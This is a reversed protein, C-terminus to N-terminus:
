LRIRLEENGEYSLNPGTLEVLSSFSSLSLCELKNKPEGRLPLSGNKGEFMLSPQFPKGPVFVRAYYPCKYIVPTFLNKLM